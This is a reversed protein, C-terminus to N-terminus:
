CDYYINRIKKAQKSIDFNESVFSFANRVLFNVPVTRNYISEICTKMQSIDGKDFLLGTKGDEVVEVIGDVRSAVVPVNSAMAELLAIGLGETESPLIVVDSLAYIDPMEDQRISRHIRIIKSEVQMKSITDEVEKQYEPYVPSGLGTVLLKVRPIDLLALLLVLDMIRKRPVVRAPCCVIFDESNISFRKRIIEKHKGGRVFSRLSIGPYVTELINVDIGGAVMYRSFSQSVSVIKKIHNRDRFVAKEFTKKVQNSIAASLYPTNHNTFIVKAGIHENLTIVFFTPLISHSHIIDPQIQLMIELVRELTKLYGVRGEMCDQLGPIRVVKVAGSVIEDQKVGNSFDGTIVFIELNPDNKLESVLDYVYTEGGGIAPPFDICFHLIKMVALNGM